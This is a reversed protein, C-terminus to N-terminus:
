HHGAVLQPQQLATCRCQAAADSLREVQKQTNGYKVIQVYAPVYIASHPGFLVLQFHAQHHVEDLM